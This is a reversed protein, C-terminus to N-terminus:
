TLGELGVEQQSYDLQEFRGLGASVRVGGVGAATRERKNRLVGRLYLISNGEFAQGAIECATQWVVEAGFEDILGGIVTYDTKDALMRSSGDGLLDLGITVGINQTLLGITNRKRMAPALDSRGAMRRMDALVRRRRDPLPELSLKAARFGADTFGFKTEVREWLELWAQRAKSAQIAQDLRDWIARLLRHAQQGAAGDIATQGHHAVQSNGSPEGTSEDTGAATDLISATEGSVGEAPAPSNAGGGGPPTLSMTINKTPPLGGRRVGTKGAVTPPLGGRDIEVTPPLGGRHSSQSVVSGLLLYAAQGAFQGHSDRFDPPLDLRRLLQASALRETCIPIGDKRDIGTVESLGLDTVRAYLRGQDAPTALGLRIFLDLDAGSLPRAHLGLAILVGLDAWRRQFQRLWGAEVAPYGFQIYIEPRTETLRNDTGCVITQTYNIQFVNVIGGGQESEDFEHDRDKM